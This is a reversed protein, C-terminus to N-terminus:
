VFSCLWNIQLPKGPQVQFSAAAKAMQRIVMMLQEVIASQAIQTRFIVDFFILVMELDKQVM